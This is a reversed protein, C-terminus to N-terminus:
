VGARTTFILSCMFCFGCLLACFYERKMSKLIIPFLDTLYTQYYDLSAFVSDVGLTVLMLFFIASFFNPWVLTNLLGPYAVFTLDMGEGSIEDISKNLKFSIHGLFTFVTLAAYISTLSNAMPIWFAAKLIKQDPKRAAGYYM